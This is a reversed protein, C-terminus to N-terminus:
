PAKWHSSCTPLCWGKDNWVWGSNENEFICEPKKMECICLVRYREGGNREEKVSKRKSYSLKIRWLRGIRMALYLAYFSYKIKMHLNISVICQKSQLIGLLLKKNDSFYNAGSGITNNFTFIAACLCLCHEEVLGTVGMKKPYYQAKRM